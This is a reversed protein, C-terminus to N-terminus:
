KPLEVPAGKLSSNPNPLESIHEQTQAFDSPNEVECKGEELSPGSRGAFPKHPHLSKIVDCSLGDWPTASRATMMPNPQQIMEKESAACEHAAPLTPSAVKALKTELQTELMGLPFTSPEM